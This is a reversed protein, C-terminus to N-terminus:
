PSSALAVARSLNRGATSLSFQEPVARAAVLAQQLADRDLIFEELVLAFSEVDRPDVVRAVPAYKLIEEHAGDHCSVVVPKGANVAEFGSLSRYDALTPCVVVDAHAYRRGTEEFSARGHFVVNDQLGQDVVRARVAGEEPGSGVVDLCWQSRASAPTAALADVLEVLGKRATISNLFLFRTPEEPPRPAPVMREPVAEVARTPVSTLYPGVVIREPSVGLTDRVFREGAENSVLVANARRGFFRKVVLNLTGSPAGRYSPDSEILLVVRSRAVKAALLSLLATFSFEIVLLVDPRMRVLDVWSRLSPVRRNGTYTIDGVKRETRGVLHFKLMPILPLEPYREVPFDRAVLAAGRPFRSAFEALLDRYYLLDGDYGFASAVWVVRQAPQRADVFKQPERVEAVTKGEASTCGMWSELRRGAM